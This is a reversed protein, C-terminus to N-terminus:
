SKFTANNAGASAVKMNNSFHSSDSAYTASVVVDKDLVSMYDTQVEWKFGATITVKKAKSDWSGMSGTVIKKGKYTVSIDHLPKIAAKAEADEVDKVLQEFDKVNVKDLRAEAKQLEDRIAGAATMATSSLSTNKAAKDAEAHAAQVALKAPAVHTEATKADQLHQKAVSISTVKGLTKANLAAWPIAKWKAEADTLKAGLGTKTSAKAKDKFSKKKQWASNTAIAPYTIDSPVTM